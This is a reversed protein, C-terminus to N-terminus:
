RKLALRPTEDPLSLAMVAWSTAAASIWSDRGHPFGSKMTPQFPFARRRVYWTGDDLQTELLFRRGRELAQDSNEIGAAVRLAYIAQGTAYADSKAGPLQSWGGDGRQEALLTKALPQLKNAPEGAWGLGLIQYVRSETNEPKVM